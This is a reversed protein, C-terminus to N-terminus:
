APPAPWWSPRRSGAPGSATVAGPSRAIRGGPRHRRRGARDGLRRVAADDRRALRSRVGAGCGIRDAGGGVARGGAAGRGRGGRGDRRGAGRRRSAAGRPADAHGTVTLHPRPGDAVVDRAANPLALVVLEGACLTTDSPPGSAGAALIPGGGLAGTFGDVRGRGAGGRQAVSAAVSRAVRTVAPEGSSVVTESDAQAAGGAVVLRAAAPVNRLGPWRRAARGACREAPRIRDDGGGAAMGELPTGSGLVALAVPPHVTTDVPEPTVPAGIDPVVNKDLPALRDGLSGLRPAVLRREGQWSALEIASAGALRRWEDAIAAVDGGAAVSDVLDVLQQGADVEDQRAAGSNRLFPLPRRPGPPDLRNYNIAPGGPSETARATLLVQNLAQVVEGKPVQPADASQPPGWM